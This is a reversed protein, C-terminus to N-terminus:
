QKAAPAKPPEPREAPAKSVEAKPQEPKAPAPTEAKPPEPKAPAEAKPAEAKPAEAKVPEPKAPKAAPEAKPAPKADRSAFYPDFSSVQNQQTYHEFVVNLEEDTLVTAHKRPEGGFYRDLLDIIEKKDVNLDKAVEHVRYKIQM